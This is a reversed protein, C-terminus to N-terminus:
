QIFAPTITIELFIPMFLYLRLTLILLVASFKLSGSFLNLGHHSIVSKAPKVDPLVDDDAQM